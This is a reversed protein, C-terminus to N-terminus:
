SRAISSKLPVDCVSLRPRALHFARGGTSVVPSHRLFAKIAGRTRCTGSRPEKARCRRRHQRHLLFKTVRRPPVDALTAEGAATARAPVGPVGWCGHVVVLCQKVYGVCLDCRLGYDLPFDLPFRAVAPARVCVPRVPPARPPALAQRPVRCCLVRSTPAATSALSSRPGALAPRKVCVSM